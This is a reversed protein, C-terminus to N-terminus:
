RESIFDRVKRYSAPDVALRALGTPFALPGRSARLQRRIIGAQERHGKVRMQAWSGAFRALFARNAIRRDREPEDSLAIARDILAVEEDMRRRVIDPSFTLSTGHVRYKSLREPRIRIPGAGYAARLWFDWDAAWHMDENFQVREFLRPRALWCCAWITNGELLKAREARGLDAPGGFDMHRLRRVPLDNSAVDILGVNSVVATADPHADLEAGLVEIFEPEMIDDAHLVAVYTGRALSAARNWNGAMGLNRENIVVRLRPDDFAEVLSVTEDTSQNDVVIIEINRRTQALASAITEEVHAAANFTPIAITAYPDTPRDDM